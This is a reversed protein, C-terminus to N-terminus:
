SVKRKSISNISTIRNFCGVGILSALLDILDFTRNSIFYQSVEELVAFSLVLMSGLYIQNTRIEYSKLKFSINAGLTLLGFLFFHGVKDGYPIYSVIQFFISSQGTNALYIVWLIFCFFSFSALYIIVTYIQTITLSKNM